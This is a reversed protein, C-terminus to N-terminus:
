PQGILLIVLILPGKDTGGAAEERLGFQLAVNVLLFGGRDGM